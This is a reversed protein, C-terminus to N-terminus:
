IGAPDDGQHPPPPETRRGECIVIETGPEPALGASPHYRLPPRLTQPSPAQADFQTRKATENEAAAAAEARAKQFDQLQRLTRSLSRELSAEYRTLQTISQGRHCTDMFCLGMFDTPRDFYGAPREPNTAILIEMEEDLIQAEMAPVRSLRWQLSAIRQVLMEEGAGVPRFRAILDDVLARYQDRDEDSLLHKEACLGHTLSNRSSNDKGDPTRPGTSKTANARNARIQAETAM